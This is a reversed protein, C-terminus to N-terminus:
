LGPPVLSGRLLGELRLSSLDGSNFLVGILRGIGELILAPTLYESAPVKVVMHYSVPLDIRSEPDVGDPDTVSLVNTYQLLISTGRKTPAIRSPEIGTGGYVNAVDSYAIRIKEPRDVPSLFNTLIVEKGATMSKIVFNDEYALDTRSLNLVANNPYGKNVTASM